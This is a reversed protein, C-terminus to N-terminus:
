RLSAACGIMAFDSGTRKEERYKGKNYVTSMDKQPPGAQRAVWYKLSTQTYARSATAYQISRM